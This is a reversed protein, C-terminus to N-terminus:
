PERGHWDPCLRDALFPRGRAVLDAPLLDALVRARESDLIRNVAVAFGGARGTKAGDDRRRHEADDVRRRRQRRRHEVGLDPHVERRHHMAALLEDPVLGGAGAVLDRGRRSAELDELLVALAEIQELGVRDVLVAGVDDPPGPGVDDPPDSIAKPAPSWIGSSRTVGSLYRGCRYAPAEPSKLGIWM